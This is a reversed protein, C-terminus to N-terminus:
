AVASLEAMIKMIKMPASMIFAASASVWTGPWSAPRTVPQPRDGSITTEATRSSYTTRPATISSSEMIRSVMGIKKGITMPSSKPRGPSDTAIQNPMM